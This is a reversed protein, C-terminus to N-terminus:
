PIGVALPRPGCGLCPRGDLHPGAGGTCGSLLTLSYREPRERTVGRERGHPMICNSGKSISSRHLFRHYVAPKDRGAPFSWRRRRTRDATAVHLPALPASTVPRHGLEPPVACAHAVTARPPVVGVNAEAALCGYGTREFVQRIERPLEALPAFTSCWARAEEDWRLTFVPKPPDELLPELATRLVAADEDPFRRLHPLSEPEIQMQCVIGREGTATMPVLHCEGFTAEVEALWQPDAPRPRDVMLLGVLFENKGPQITLGYGSFLKDIAPHWLFFLDGRGITERAPEHEVMLINYCMAGAISKCDM